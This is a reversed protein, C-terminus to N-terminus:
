IKTVYATACSILFDEGWGAASIVNSDTFLHDQIPEAM